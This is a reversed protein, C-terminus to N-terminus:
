PATGQADCRSATGLPPLARPPGFLRYSLGRLLLVLHMRTLRVNDRLMRFHSRGSEPYVVRTPLFHVPFGHWCANVLIETDLEMRRRPIARCLPLVRDLPYLRLGCMADQIAGSGAEIRALVNTIMRGYLRHSPIDSGFQPLGSFLAEPAKLSAAHLREIDTPDHQGDADVVIVHSYGQKWAADFGAVQAAGKGRNVPLSLLEVWPYDKILAKLQMLTVADSGDDVLLAPLKLADLQPLFRELQPVHCYHPIVICYRQAM